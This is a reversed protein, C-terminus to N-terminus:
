RLALKYTESSLTSVSCLVFVTVARGQRGLVIHHAQGRCFRRMRVGSIEQQCTDACHWLLANHFKNNQLPKM